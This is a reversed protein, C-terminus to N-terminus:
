NLMKKINELYHVDYSKNQKFWEELIDYANRAQDLSIKNDTRISKIAKSEQNNEDYLKLLESDWGLLQAIKLCGDDCDAQFYINETDNCNKILERNIIIKKVKSNIGPLSAFRFKM